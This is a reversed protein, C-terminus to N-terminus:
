KGRRKKQARTAKAFLEHWLYKSVACDNFIRTNLACECQSLNSIYKEFMYLVIGLVKQSNNASLSRILM